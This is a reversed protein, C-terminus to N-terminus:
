GCSALVAQVRQAHLQSGTLRLAEQAATRAEGTHGHWAHTEALDILVDAELQPNQVERAIALAREHGAVADGHRGVRAHVAALANSARAEVVRTALRRARDVTATALDFATDLDGADRHCVALLALTDTENVRDGIARHLALAATFHEIARRLCEDVSAADFAAPGGPLLGARWYAVGLNALTVARGATRGGREHLDLARTLCHVTERWRGAHWHSRSLNNIAVAQAEPWGASGALDHAREYHTRARERDGRFDNRCGEAMHAAAQARPDAAVTAARLAATNVTEWDVTSAGARFYGQAVDALLWTERHHGDAPLRDVLAVLNRHEARLWRAADEASGFRGSPAPDASLYLLHPHVMRAAARVADLYYGALRATAARRDAEPDAAALEGAYLRLLDHMRYRGAAHEEVLHRSALLDLIDGARQVTAGALAAASGATVDPGPVLGFLRFMRQEADPMAAYSLAFTARVATDADDTALVDLRDGAALTAVLDAIARGPRGALNAAAIRLALPLYGCLRALEAAAAPEARVREAGLVRELLAEAELPDLVDLM